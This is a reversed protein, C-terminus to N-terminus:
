IGATLGEWADREKGDPDEIVGSTTNFIMTSRHQPEYPPWNPLHATQPNGSHAFAAWAGSIQTALTHREPGQGSLQVADPVGFVYAVEMAHPAGLTGDLVDTEFDFRYMWVPATGQAAKREALRISGVRFRDTM